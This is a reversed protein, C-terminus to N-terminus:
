IGSQKYRENYYITTGAVDEAAGLDDADTRLEIKIGHKAIETMIQATKLTTMADNRSAFILKHPTFALLDNGFVDKSIADEQEVWLSAEDTNLTLKAYGEATKSESVSFGKFELQDKLERAKAESVATSKAM